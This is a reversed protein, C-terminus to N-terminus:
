FRSEAGPTNQLLRLNKEKLSSILVIEVSIKARSLSKGASDDDRWWGSWASPVWLVCPQISLGPSSPDGHSSGVPNQDSSLM